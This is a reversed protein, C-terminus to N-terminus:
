VKPPDTSFFRSPNFGTNPVEAKPSPPVSSVPAISDPWRAVFSNRALEIHEHVISSLPRKLRSACGQLYGLTDSDFSVSKPIHM